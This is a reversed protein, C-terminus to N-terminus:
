KKNQEVLPIGMIDAPSVYGSTGKERAPTVATQESAPIQESSGLHPYDSTSQGPMPDDSTSPGAMQDDSTSPGAMQDDSTSPGSMQDDSTSPGPMPEDSTSPGPIPNQHNSIGAHHKARPSHGHINLKKLQGPDQILNVEYM